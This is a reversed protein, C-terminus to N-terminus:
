LRVRDFPVLDVQFRLNVWVTNTTKSLRYTDMAYLNPQLNGLEEAFDGEVYLKDLINVIKQSLEYYRYGNSIRSYEEPVLVNIEFYITNQKNNFKGNSLMVFLANKQKIDMDPNFPIDFILEEVDEIGLDPQQIIKNDYGKGRNSLPTYTNYFLYRRIEQDSILQEYIYQILASCKRIKNSTSNLFKNNLNSM